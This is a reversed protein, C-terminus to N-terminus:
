EYFHFVASCEPTGSGFSEIRLGVCANTAKQNMIEGGEEGFWQFMHKQYLNINLLPIGYVTPDTTAGEHGTIVAAADGSDFKAPTVASGGSPAITGDAKRVSAIVNADAGAAESIFSVYNIKGKASASGIMALVTETAVNHSGELGYKRPM